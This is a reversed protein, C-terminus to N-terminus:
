AADRGDLATELLDRCLRRISRQRGRELLRGQVEAAPVGPLHPLFSPEPV